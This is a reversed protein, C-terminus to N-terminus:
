IEFGKGIELKNRFTHITADTIIKQLTSLIMLSNPKMARGALKLLEKGSRCQFNFSM